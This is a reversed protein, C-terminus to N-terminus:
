LVLRPVWKPGWRVRLCDSPWGTLLFNSLRRRRKMRGRNKTPRDSRRRCCCRPIRHAANTAQKNRTNGTSTSFTHPRQRSVSAVNSHCGPRSFTTIEGWRGSTSWSRTNKPSTIQDAAFPRHKHCQHRSCAKNNSTERQACPQHRPCAKRISTEHKAGDCTQSRIYRYAASSSSVFGHRSCGTMAGDTEVM